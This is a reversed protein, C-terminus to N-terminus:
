EVLVRRVDASLIPAYIRCSAQNTGLDAVAELEAVPAIFTSPIENTPEEGFIGDVFYPTIKTITLTKAGALAKLREFYHEENSGPLAIVKRARICAIIEQPSATPQQQFRELKPWNLSFGQIKGQSGFELWFGESPGNDGTGWFAMGDLERSLFVGRGCIQNALDNGDSDKNFHSTWNKAKYHSHDIGLELACLRARKLITKDDPIGATSTSQDPNSYSLTANSPNIDFIVPVGCCWNAPVDKSIFYPERAPKPFGKSQLSALVMANSIVAEPFVFPLIRRYVWIQKPVNTIGAQWRIPTTPALHPSFREM